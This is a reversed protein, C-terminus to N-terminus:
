RYEPYLSNSISVRDAHTWPLGSYPNIALNSSWDDSIMDNLRLTQSVPRVKAHGDVWVFAATKMISNIPGNGALPCTPNVSGQPTICWGPPPEWTQSMFDIKLDNWQSRNPLIEITNAIDAISDITDLGPPTFPGACWGNAFGIVHNNVAYNSALNVQDAAVGDTFASTWYQPQVFPNTQDTFLQTNKLYPGMAYRWNYYTSGWSACDPPFGFFEKILHDDSDNQYMLEGLGLQKANSLAATRKAQLKAQAFVPFLIAALIAIIAIVVLLEILTFAHRSSKM